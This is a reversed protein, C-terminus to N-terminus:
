APKPKPKGVLREIDEDTTAPNWRRFSNGRRREDATGERATQVVPTVAPQIPRVPPPMPSPPSAAAAKRVDRVVREWTKRVNERKLPSGDKNTLGLGAFGETASIWDARGQRHKALEDYHDWIWWYLASHGHRGRGSLAAAIDAVQPTKTM